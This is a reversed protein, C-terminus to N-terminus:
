NRYQAFHNRRFRSHHILAASRAPLMPSICGSEILRPPSYPPDTSGTIAVAPNLDAAACLRMACLERTSSSLGPMLGSCCADTGAKRAHRCRGYCWRCLAPTPTTCRMISLWPPFQCWRAHRSTLERQSGAGTGTARTPSSLSAYSPIAVGKKKVNVSNSAAM